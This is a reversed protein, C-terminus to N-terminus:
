RICYPPINIQFLFFSSLHIYGSVDGEEPERGEGEGLEFHAAWISDPSFPLDSCSPPTCGQSPSTGRGRKGVVPDFTRRYAGDEAGRYVDGLIAILFFSIAPFSLFLEGIVWDPLLDTSPLLIRNFFPLCSPQEPPAVIDGTCTTPSPPNCPGDWERFVSFSSFLPVSHIAAPLVM